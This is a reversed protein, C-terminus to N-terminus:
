TGLLGTYRLFSLLCAVALVVVGLLFLAVRNPTALYWLVATFIGCLLLVIAQAAGPLDEDPPRWKGMRGGWMLFLAGGAAMIAGGYGVVPAFPGYDAAIAFM